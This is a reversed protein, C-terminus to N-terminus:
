NNFWSGPGIGIINLILFLIGLAGLGIGAYCMWIDKNSVKGQKANQLGIIGCIVGPFGLFTCCLAGLLGTVFSVTGMTNAPLSNVMNVNNNMPQQNNFQQNQQFAETQNMGVNQLDAGCKPCFRAGDVVDFGCKPCIM